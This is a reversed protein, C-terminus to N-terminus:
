VSKVYKLVGSNPSNTFCDKVFNPLNIPLSLGLEIIYKVAEPVAPGVIFQKNKM